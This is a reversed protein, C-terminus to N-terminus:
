SFLRMMEALRWWKLSGREKFSGTMQLNELKLFVGCDMLESLIEARACPTTFLAEAIRARAAQIEALSIVM